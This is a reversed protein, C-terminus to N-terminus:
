RGKTSPSPLLPAPAPPCGQARGFRQPVAILEKSGDTCVGVMVLACLRHEDAPVNLSKQQKRPDPLDYM